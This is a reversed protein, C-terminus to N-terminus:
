KDVSGKGKLREFKPWVVSAAWRGASTQEFCEVDKTTDAQVYAVVVTGTEPDFSLRVVECSFFAAMDPREQSTEGRRFTRGFEVYGEANTNQEWKSDALAERLANRFDADTQLTTRYTFVLSDVDLNRYIGQVQDAEILFAGLWKRILEPSPVTEKSVLGCGALTAALLYVVLSSVFLPLGTKM